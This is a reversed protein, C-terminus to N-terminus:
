VLSQFTNLITKVLIGSTCLLKLGHPHQQSLVYSVLERHVLDDADLFMLYGGGLEHLRKALAQKKKGKDSMREANTVPIPADVPLFETKSKYSPDITPIDHCAVLVKFNGNSQNFISALTNNFLRTIVDWNRAAQRSILPIGFYLIGSNM